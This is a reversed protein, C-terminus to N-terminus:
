KQVEPLDGTEAPASGRGSKRQQLERDAARGLEADGAMQAATKLWHLEWEGQASLSGMVRMAEALLRDRESQNKDAEALQAALTLTPGLRERRLSEEVVQRAEDLEGRKRKALALNCLAVGGGPSAAAALRYFKEQRAHDGRQGHYIGMLNLIYGDPRNKMRLARSLYDLAKDIQQLESYDRAVQVITDAVRAEPIKGTRLEEETQQIKLRLAHPNVVNTFPNEVTKEFPRGDTQEAVLLRFDFVQNEDLRCEVCLADGRKVDVLTVVEQLLLREEEGGVVEIRLETGKTGANKPVRLSRNQAMGGAAPWPLAVGRPVLEVLGGGSRIAIRDHCVVQFISRGFLALSLAHYAAGRAVALQISEQDPYTLLQANPLFSRMAGQIQPILSSGGVLLCLGIESREM